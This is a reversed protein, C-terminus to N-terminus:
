SATWRHISEPVASLSPLSTPPPAPRAIGTSPSARRKTSVQDIIASLRGESIMRAAIKEAVRVEVGIITAFETLSICEYIKGCAEINHEM